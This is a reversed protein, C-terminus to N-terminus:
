QSPPFAGKHLLFSHRLSFFPRPNQRPLYLLTRLPAPSSLDEGQRAPPGRLSAPCLFTLLYRLERRLASRESSTWCQWHVRFGTGTQIRSGKSLLQTVKPWNNLRQTDWNRWRYFPFLLHSKGWPSAKLIFHSLHLIDLAQGQVHETFTIAM